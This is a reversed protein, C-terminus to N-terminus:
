LKKWTYFNSYNNSLICLNCNIDNTDLICLESVDRYEQTGNLARNLLVSIGSDDLVVFREATADLAQEYSM